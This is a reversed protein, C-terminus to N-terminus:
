SGVCWQAIDDCCDGFLACVEDCWCAGAASSGGCADECSPESDVPPEACTCTECGTEPDTAFGSPCFLECLVPQCVPEAVCVGACDAGGQAPDCNDNPDDECVQGDLCPLGAIGGCFSGPPPPACPGDDVVGTGAAAAFCSNDYTNGDCGCVPAFIEICAEPRPECTSSADAAGCYQGPQYACYEDESCTNGLFGGCGQGTPLPPDIGCVDDVDSCCDGYEVCAEDCWCNGESPGGCFDGIPSDCTGVLDAKGLPGRDATNAGETTTPEATCAGVVSAALLLGLTWFRTTM